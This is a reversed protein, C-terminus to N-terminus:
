ERGRALQWGELRLIMATVLFCLLFRYSQKFYAIATTAINGKSCM